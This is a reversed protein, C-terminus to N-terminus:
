YASFKIMDSRGCALLVIQIGSERSTIICLYLIQIDPNRITSRRVLNYVAPIQSVDKVLLFSGSGISAIYYSETTIM